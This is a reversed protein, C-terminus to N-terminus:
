SYGGNNTISRYLGFSDGPSGALIATSHSLYQNADQYPRYSLSFRLEKPDALLSRFLTGRPLFIHTDPNSTERRVIQSEEASVDEAKDAAEAAHYIFTWMFLLLATTLGPSFTKQRM